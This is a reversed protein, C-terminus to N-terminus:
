QENTRIKNNILFLFFIVGAFHSLLSVLVIPIGKVKNKVLDSLIFIAMIANMLYPINFLMFQVMHNAENFEVGMKMLVIQMQSVVLWNM